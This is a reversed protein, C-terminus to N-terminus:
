EVTEVTIISHSTDLQDDSCATFGLLIPLLLIWKNKM